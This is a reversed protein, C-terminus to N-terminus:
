VKIIITKGRQGKPTEQKPSISFPSNGSPGFPSNGGVNGMSFPNSGFKSRNFSGKKAVSKKHEQIKSKANNFLESVKAIRERTPASKLERIKAKEREVDKRLNERRELEVRQKHLEELAVKNQIEQSHQALRISQKRENIKNAIFDRIGM